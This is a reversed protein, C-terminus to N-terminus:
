ESPKKAYGVVQKVVRITALIILVGIVGIMQTVTKALGQTREELSDIHSEHSDITDTAVSLSETHKRNRRTNILAVIILGLAAIVAVTIQVVWGEAGSLVFM